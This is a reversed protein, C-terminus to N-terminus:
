KFFANIDFNEWTLKGYELEHSVKGAHNWWIASLMIMSATDGKKLGPLNPKVAPPPDVLLKFSVVNEMIAFASTGYLSIAEV